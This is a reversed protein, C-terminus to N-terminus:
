VLDCICAYMNIFLSPHTWDIGKRRRRRMMMMMVLRVLPISMGDRWLYVM